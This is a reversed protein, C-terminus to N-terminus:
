KADVLITDARPTTALGKGLGNKALKAILHCDYTGDGNKNNIQLTVVVGLKIPIFIALYYSSM